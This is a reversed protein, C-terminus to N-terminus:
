MAESSDTVMISSMPELDWRWRLLLSIAWARRAATRSTAPQSIVTEAESELAMIPPPPSIATLM